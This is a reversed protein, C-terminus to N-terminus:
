RTEVANRPAVFPVELEPRTATSDPLAARDIKGNPTRPLSDVFVFRAPIARDALRESLARRMAGVGPRRPGPGAVYAVLRAGGPGERIVVVAERVTPLAALAAEVEALEVWHGRIKTRSDRRGVFLLCGDPLLRGLDGTRFMRRGDGGPAPVFASASLDP